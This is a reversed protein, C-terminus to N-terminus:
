VATKDVIVGHQM